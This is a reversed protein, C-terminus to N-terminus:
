FSKENIIDDDHFVFLNEKGKDLISWWHLFSNVIIQIISLTLTLMTTTFRKIIKLSFKKAEQAVIRFLFKELSQFRSLQNLLRLTSDLRSNIYLFNFRKSSSSNSIM